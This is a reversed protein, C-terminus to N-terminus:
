CKWTINEYVLKSHCLLLLNSVWETFNLTSSSDRCTIYQTFCTLTLVNKSCSACLKLYVWFCIGGELLKFSKTHTCSGWIDHTWGLIYHTRSTESNNLLQVVIGVEMVIYKSYQPLKKQRSVWIERVSKRKNSSYCEAQRPRETVFTWVDAMQLLYGLERGGKPQHKLRCLKLTTKQKQTPNNPNKEKCAIEEFRYTICQSWSNRNWHSLVKSFLTESLPTQM